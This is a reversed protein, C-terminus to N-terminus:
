LPSWGAGIYSGTTYTADGVDAETTGKDCTQWFLVSTESSTAFKRNGGSHVTGIGFVQQNSTQTYDIFVKNSLDYNAGAGFTVSASNDDVAAAMAPISFALVLLLSLAAIILKKM